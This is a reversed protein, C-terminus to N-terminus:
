NQEGNSIMMVKGNDKVPREALVVGSSFIAVSYVCNGNCKLRYRM